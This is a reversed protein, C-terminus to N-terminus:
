YRAALGWALWPVRVLNKRYICPFRTTPGLAHAPVGRELGPVRDLAKRPVTGIPDTQLVRRGFTKFEASGVIEGMGRMVAQPWALMSKFASSHGNQRTNRIPVTSVDLNLQDAFFSYFDRWTSHDGDSINFAQGAVREPDAFLAALLAEAVNDVYVMDSAVDPSGLWEFRGEAIAPIPRTIFIRSFPGFVRAPRFVVSPLGKDALALVIREAAAKSEGYVSGSQPRIPTNEDLIGTLVGDDGYVSM